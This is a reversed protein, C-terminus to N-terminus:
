QFDGELSFGPTDDEDLFALARFVKEIQRKVKKPPGHGEAVYRHISIGEVCVAWFTHRDKNPLANFTICAKRAKLPPIGLLDVLFSYRDDIPERLPTRTAEQYADEQLFDQIGRDIQQEIWLGLEPKGRYKPADHAVYAMARMGLRASDILLARERIRRLTRDAFGLPDGNCLRRLIKSPLQGGLFEAGPYPEDEPQEDPGPEAPEDASSPDERARDSGNASEEFDDEWDDPFFDPFPFEQDGM